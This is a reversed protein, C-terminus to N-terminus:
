LHVLALPLEVYTAVGETLATLENITQKLPVKDTFLSQYAHTLHSCLIDICKSEINSCLNSALPTLNDVTSLPDALLGTVAGVTNSVLDRKVSGTM